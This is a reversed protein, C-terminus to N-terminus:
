YPLVSTLSANALLRRRRQQVFFGSFGIMLINLSCSPRHDYRGGDTQSASCKWRDPRHRALGKGDADGVQDPELAVACRGRRRRGRSGSRASARRPSTRAGGGGARTDASSGGTPRKARRGDTSTTSSGSPGAATPCSGRRSSVPEWFRSRRRRGTSRAVTWILGGAGQRRPPDRTVARVTFGQSVMLLRGACVDGTYAVSSSTRTLALPSKTM